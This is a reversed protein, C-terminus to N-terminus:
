YSFKDIRTKGRFVWYVTSTYTLVFPMGILAITRMIYLTRLSSSANYITLSHSPDPRSVILNPFLAMGFLFVLAALTAASSVFAWDMRGKHLCRPINAVALVNLAVIIWAAPYREFNETAHPIALLTYLSVVGYVMLFAWYARWAWRRIRRELEGETKLALYLAGHMAATVVCFGGVLLPYPRFLDWLRGAFERNSGLPMGQISNGVAVGAVLLILTSAAAFSVDWYSRWWRAQFKSRFEISVARGILFVLLLMFPLYFATFATAYVDPFAAFLAGGFTVLWVENGDWLPGISNLVLRREMDDRVFLHLTGVGLDFGDLVVYGTLLVGLTVFWFVQLDM